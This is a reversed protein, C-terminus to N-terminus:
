TIINDSVKTLWLFKFKALSAREPKASKSVLQIKIDCYCLIEIKSIFVLIHMLSCLHLCTCVTGSIDPITDVLSYCGVGRARGACVVDLSLFDLCLSFILLHM